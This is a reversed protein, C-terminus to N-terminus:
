RPPLRWRGPHCPTRVDAPAIAALTGRTEAHWQAAQSYRIKYTGGVKRAPLRGRQIAAYVAQPKLDFFDAMESVLMERDAAQRGALMGAISLDEDLDLWHLGERLLVINARQEPTAAELLPYCSLPIKIVRGDRLEVILYDDSISASVPTTNELM